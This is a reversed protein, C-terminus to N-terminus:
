IFKYTISVNAVDIETNQPYSDVVAPEYTCNTYPDENHVSVLQFDSYSFISISKLPNYEYSKSFALIFNERPKKTYIKNKINMISPFKFNDNNYSIFQNEETEFDTFEYAYSRVPMWGNSLKTKKVM